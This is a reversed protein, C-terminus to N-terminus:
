MSGLRDRNWTVGRGLPRETSTLQSSSNSPPGSMWDLSYFVFIPSYNNLHIELNSCKLFQASVMTYTFFYAVVYNLFLKLHYHPHDYFIYAVDIIEPVLTNKSFM